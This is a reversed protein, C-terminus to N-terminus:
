CNTVRRTEDWRATVPPPPDPELPLLEYSNNRQRGDGFNHCVKILGRRELEKVARGVSSDSIVCYKSITRKSPYCSNKRNRCSLLYCYVVFPIPQLEYEYIKKPVMVFPERRM